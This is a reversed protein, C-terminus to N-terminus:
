IRTSPKSNWEFTANPFGNEFYLALITDRDVAVNFDSFPQGPVSSLRDLTTAKDIQEIGEVRLSAIFHQPGEEIMLFVAIDGLKGRYDDETRHTM